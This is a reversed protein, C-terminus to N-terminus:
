ANSAERAVFASIREVIREPLILGARMQPLLDTNKAFLRGLMGEDIAPRAKLYKALGDLLQANTMVVQPSRPAFVPEGAIADGISPVPYFTPIFAPVPKVQRSPPNSRFHQMTTVRPEPRGCGNGPSPGPAPLTSAPRSVPPANKGKPYQMAGASGVYTTPSRHVGIWARVNRGAGPALRNVPRDRDPSGCGLPLM